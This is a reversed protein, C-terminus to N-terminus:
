SGWQSGLDDLKNIVIRLMELPFIITHEEGSIVSYQRIAVSGHETIEATIGDCQKLVVIGNDDKM